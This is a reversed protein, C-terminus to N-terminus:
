AKLQKCSKREIFNTKLLIQIKKITAKNVILDNLSKIIMSALLAPNRDITTLPPDSYQSFEINDIGVLSVDRPVKKKKEKIAKMAGLSILDSFGLIATINKNKELIIKANEYGSELNFNGHCIIINDSDLNLTDLAANFGSLRNLTVMHNKPGTIVAINRHGLNYLYNTLDYVCSYNDFDLYNYEKNRFVGNTVIYPINNDVIQNVLYNNDFPDSLIIGDFNKDLVDKIIKENETSDDDNKIYSAEYNLDTLEKELARLDASSSPDDLYYEGFQPIIIGIKRPVGDFKQSIVGPQFMFEEVAALVKKKTAESIKGKDSLVRSVTSISVGTLKAIDKLTVM